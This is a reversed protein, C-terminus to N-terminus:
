RRAVKVNAGDRQESLAMSLMPSSVQSVARELAASECALQSAPKSLTLATGGVPACLRVAARTLRDIAIVADGHSGLNLDGVKVVASEMRIEDLGGALVPGAAVVGLMVAAIASVTRFM